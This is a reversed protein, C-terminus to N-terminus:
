RFSLSASVHHCSSLLLLYQASPLVSASVILAPCSGSWPLWDHAVVCRRNAWALASGPTSSHHSESRDHSSTASALAIHGAVGALSPSSTVIHHGRHAAASRSYAAQLRCSEASRSVSGGLMAFVSCLRAVCNNYTRPLRTTSAVVTNAIDHSFSSGHIHLV